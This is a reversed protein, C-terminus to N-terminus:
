ASSTLVNLSMPFTLLLLAVSPFLLNATDPFSNTLSFLFAGSNSSCFLLLSLFCSRGSLQWETSTDDMQGHM